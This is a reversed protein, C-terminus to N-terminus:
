RCPHLLSSDVLLCHTEKEMQTYVKVKSLCSLIWFKFEIAKTKDKIQAEIGVRKGFTKHTGSRKKEALSTQRQMRERMNKQFM